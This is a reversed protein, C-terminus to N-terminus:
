KQDRKLERWIDKANNLSCSTKGYTLDYPIHLYLARHIAKTLEEQTITVTDVSQKESESM